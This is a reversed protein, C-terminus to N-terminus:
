TYVIRLTLDHLTLQVQKSKPSYINDNNHKKNNNNNNNAHTNNRIIIISIM